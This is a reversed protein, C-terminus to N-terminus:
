LDHEAAGLQPLHIGRADMVGTRVLEYLDSALVGTHCKIRGRSVSLYSTDFFRKTIGHESFEGVVGLDSEFSLPQLHRPPDGVREDYPNGCSAWNDSTTRHVPYGQYKELWNENQGVNVFLLANQFDAFSPFGYHDAIKFSLERTSVSGSLVNLVEYRAEFLSDMSCIPQLASAEGTEEPEPCKAPVEEISILRGVFAVVDQEPEALAVSPLALVSAILALLISRAVM